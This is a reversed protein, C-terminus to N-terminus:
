QRVPKTLKVTGDFYQQVTRIWGAPFPSKAAFQQILQPPMKPPKPRGKRTYDLAIWLSALIINPLLILSLPPFLNKGNGQQLRSGLLVTVPGAM